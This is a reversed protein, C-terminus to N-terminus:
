IPSNGTITSKMRELIWTASKEGWWWWEGRKKKKKGDARNKFDSCECKIEGKSFSFVRQHVTEQEFIIRSHSSPWLLESFPSVRSMQMNWRADRLMYYSGTLTTAWCRHGCFASSRRTTVHADNLSKLKKLVWNLRSFKSTLPQECIYIILLCM